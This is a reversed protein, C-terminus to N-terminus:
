FQDKLDRLKKFTSVDDQEKGGLANQVWAKDACLFPNFAKQDRLRMPITPLNAQRQAHIHNRYALFAQKDIFDAFYHDVFDLNQLTYEHAAYLMTEDPLSRLNRFNEWLRAYATGNEPEFIRGCGLGFLADGVFYLQQHPCYFGIHGNTHGRLDTVQVSISDWLILESNLHLTHTISPIRYRDGAYGYVPCPHRKLIADNGGTHDGHHHTNLIGCLTIGHQHLYELIVDADPTDILYAKQTATEEWLFAYNDQRCPILHIHYTNKMM